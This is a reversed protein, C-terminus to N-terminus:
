SRQDRIRGGFSDPREPAGEFLHAFFRFGNAWEFLWIEVWKLPNWLWLYWRQWTRQVSSRTFAGAFPNRKKLWLRPRSPVKVDPMEVSLEAYFTALEKTTLDRWDTEVKKKKSIFEHLAEEVGSRQRSRLWVEELQFFLGAMKWVRRTLVTTRKLWYPLWAEQPLGARRETRRQVSWFGCNMPHLREIRSSYLYWM